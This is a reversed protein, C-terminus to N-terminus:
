LMDASRRVIRQVKKKFAPYDERWDKAAEINAPSEDNPTSLMSIVSLLITEVTHVPMWREGADEYGYKDEGPPHLISICVEGDPYVNPHWMESIFRLKPPMLPYDKPFTMRAKFFGGEYLTDPPGIIM